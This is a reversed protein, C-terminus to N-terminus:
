GVAKKRGDGKPSGERLPLGEYQRLVIETRPFPYSVGKRSGDWSHILADTAIIGAAQLCDGLMQELNTLDTDRDADLWFVAEVWVPHTIHERLGQSLAQLHLVQAAFKQYDVQRPNAMVFRKGTKKNLAINQSTKKTIPPRELRFLYDTM